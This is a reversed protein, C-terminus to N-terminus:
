AASAATSSFFSGQRFVCILRLAPEPDDEHTRPMGFVALVEDGIIRDIYGEYRVIIAVIQKFVLNMMERVDEPDLRECLTSYGCLDSFLVAVWKRESTTSPIKRGASPDISFPEQETPFFAPFTDQTDSDNLVQGCASCFQGTPRNVTRCHMCRPGLPFGCTPCNVAGVAVANSCEPCKM